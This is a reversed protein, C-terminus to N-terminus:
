KNPTLSVLRAGLAPPFTRASVFITNREAFGPMSVAKGTVVIAVSGAALGLGLAPVLSQGLASKV